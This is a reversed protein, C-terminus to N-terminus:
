KSKKIPALDYTIAQVRYAKVPQNYLIASHWEPSESIVRLADNDVEKSGSSKLVKAKSVSGNEDVVFEIQVKVEGEVKTDLNKGINKKLYAQWAKDGGKFEAERMAIYNKIKNGDEDYGETIGEKKNDPLYYHVALKGNPYYHYLQVAKGDAYYISDEVKGRKTYLTQSGVPNAMTTDPYTSRGRVVKTGAFYSTCKYVGGQKVFEAYYVAKDPSTEAWDKDYYKTIKQAAANLLFSFCFTIIFVIKIRM